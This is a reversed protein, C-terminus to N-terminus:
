TAKKEDEQRQYEVRLVSMVKEMKSEANDDNLSGIWDVFCVGTL